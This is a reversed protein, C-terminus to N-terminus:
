EGSLYVAVGLVVIFGVFGGVALLATKPASFSRRQLQVIESRDYRAGTASVITSGGLSEVVFRERRGDNLRVSITDGAKITGFAPGGTELM